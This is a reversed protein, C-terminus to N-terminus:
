RVGPLRVVDALRLRGDYLARGVVVGEAGAADAARIDDLTTVGGALVVPVAVARVLAVLGELDPGVLMGDRAVDTYILRPAGAAVVRRAAELVPVDTVAQWGRVAVAGRRADLAVAIRDGFRRVSERVLPGALAGTGLV